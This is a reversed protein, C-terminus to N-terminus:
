SQRNQFCIPDAGGMYLYSILYTIDLINVRYDGNCDVAVLPDPPPGGKYVYNILFTVDLINITGDGNADGCVYLCVDGIGDDDSDAQDPNYVEICNDCSDGIGDRDWDEQGPNYVSPCNDQSGPLGDGDADFANIWSVAAEVVDDRGQAVGERTLWVQEYPVDPFDEFSPFRLHTLYRGPNSVQYTEGVAMYCNFNTYLSFHRRANFAGRTPKGFFKTMPHYSMALSGQDGASVAGPGVLVAIPGAYFTAPDGHIIMAADMDPASCLAFHDDPDCRQVWKSTELTTDYLLQLGSQYIVWGGFNTRFDLILGITEHEFMLDSVAEYFDEGAQGFWGLAYIYGIKTGEIIGWTVLNTGYYTYVPMAVGPIDLQETAYLTMNQNELLSTPLHVTDDDAYRAIDITDFLHWNLGAAMLVSHTFSEESCGWDARCVPLEAELLEKYLVKWPIGDYGLVVDGPVLGFPHNEVAKYVLLSSDPLPTLGAGFHDNTGWGGVYMLPVGPEPQTTFVASDFVVTHSERLSMGAHTLIASFRGRSVTDLIEPYYVDYISDWINTDLGHFCPFIDDIGDWFKQFIYLKTALTYGAGWTSDIADQWDDKSYHGPRKDLKHPAPHRPLLQYYLEPPIDEPLRLSDNRIRPEDTAEAQLVILAFICVTRLLIGIKTMVLTRELALM